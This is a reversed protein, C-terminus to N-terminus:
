NHSPSPRQHWPRTDTFQSTDMKEPIKGHSPYTVVRFDDNSVYEFCSRDQNDVDFALWCDDGKKEPVWGCSIAFRIAEAVHSPKMVAFPFVFLCAGFGCASQIVARESRDFNIKYHYDAGDVTISRRGTRPIAM